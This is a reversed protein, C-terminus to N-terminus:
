NLLLAAKQLRTERDEQTRELARIFKQKLVVEDELQPKHKQQELDKLLQDIASSQAKQL